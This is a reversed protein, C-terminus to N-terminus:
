LQMCPQLFYYQLLWLATYLYKLNLKPSDFQFEDCCYNRARTILSENFLYYFKVEIGYHMCLASLDNTSRTYMGHCQGGYMPTAVFLKRKKLEDIEIRIEM